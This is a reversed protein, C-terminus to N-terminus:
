LKVSIKIDIHDFIISHCYSRECVNRLLKIKVKIESVISRLLRRCVVIALQNTTTGADILACARLWNEDWKHAALDM